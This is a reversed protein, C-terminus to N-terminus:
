AAAVSRRRRRRCSRDRGTALRIASVGLRRAGGRRGASRRKWETFRRFEGSLIKNKKPKLDLKGKEKIEKKQNTKKKYIL